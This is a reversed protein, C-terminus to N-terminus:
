REISKSDGGYKGVAKEYHYELKADRAAKRLMARQATHMMPMGLNGVYAGGAGGGAGPASGHAEIASSRGVRSHEAGKAAPLKSQEASKTSMVPSQYKTQYRYNTAVSQPRQQQTAIATPTAFRDLRTPLRDSKQTRLAPVNSTAPRKQVKITVSTIPRPNPRMTPSQQCATTTPRRLPPQQNAPSSSKDCRVAALATKTRIPTRTPAAPPTKKRSHLQPTTPRKSRPKEHVDVQEAVTMRSMLKQILEQHQRQTTPSMFNVHKSPQQAAAVTAATTPRGTASTTTTAPRVDGDWRDADGCRVTEAADEDFQLQEAELAALLRQRRRINYLGGIKGLPHCRQSARVDAASMGLLRAIRNLDANASTDADLTAFTDYAHRSHSPILYNHLDRVSIRDRPVPVLMKSIIIRYVTAPPPRLISSYHLSINYNNNNM